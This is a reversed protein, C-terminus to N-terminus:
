DNNSTKNNESSNISKKLEEIKDQATSKLKNIALGYEKKETDKVKKFESFYRSIHGKKGLFEIRFDEIENSDKSNFDLVKKIKEEIEKIM